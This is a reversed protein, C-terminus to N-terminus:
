RSTVDNAPIGGGRSRWDRDPASEQTIGHGSRGFAPHPARGARDSLRFVESPLSPRSPRYHLRRHNRIRGLAGSGPGPTAVPPVEPRHRRWGQSVRGPSTQHIVPRDAGLQGRQDDSRHGRQQREPDEGGRQGEPGGEVQEGRTGEEVVQAPGAFRDDGLQLPFAPERDDLEGRVAGQGGQGLLPRAGVLGDGFQAAPDVPRVQAVGSVVQEVGPEILQEGREVRQGGAPAEDVGPLDVPGPRDPEEAPHDIGGELREGRHGGKGVSLEVALHQRQGREAPGPLQEILGVRQEGAREGGAPVGLALVLLQYAGDVVLTEQHLGRHGVQGVGGARFVPPEGLLLRVDPQVGKLVGQDAAPVQREVEVYPGPLGALRRDPLLQPVELQAAGVVQRLPRHRNRHADQDPEADGPHEPQERDHDAQQHGQPDAPRQGAPQGPDAGGRQVHGLVPQGVHDGPQSVALVHVDGPLRGLQVVAAVLDALHRPGEVLYTAGGHLGGDVLDGQAAAEVLDEEVDGPPALPQHVPLQRQQVPQLPLGLVRVLQGPQELDVVEGGPEPPM